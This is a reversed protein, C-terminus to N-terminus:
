SLAIVSKATGRFILVNVERRMGDPSIWECEKLRWRPRGSHTSRPDRQGAQSGSGPQLLIRLALGHTILLLPAVVTSIVYTAGLQEALLGAHNSEQM